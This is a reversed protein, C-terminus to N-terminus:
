PPRQWDNGRTHRQRRRRHTHRQGGVLLSTSEPIACPHCDDGTTGAVSVDSFYLQRFPRSSAAQGLDQIQQAGLTSGDAFQMQSVAGDLGGAIVVAGTGIGDVVLYRNNGQADVGRWFSLQDQTVGDGFVIKSTGEDDLVVDNDSTSDILYTDNGAGGVLYDRGAGGSLTDDGEQGLILDDGDEGYLVDDGTEGLIQDGDAGGYVTDKGDWGWVFDVGAGGIVMDDGTGASIDDDADQGTITDNGAGGVLAGSGTVTDDGADGMLTGYGVLVDNGDGGWLRGGGELYDSGAGGNLNNGDVNRDFAIDYPEIENDILVDNGDGGDLSDNDAGGQLTDNGAQGLLLDRGVGGFLTDDGAYGYLNDSGDGGDLYDNGQNAVPTQDSDGFLSDSGAGGFLTDNGSDGILQDQGDGGSLYDDGDDAATVSLGASPAVNNNGRILDDGAGGLLTDAGGDGFIQDDGAGGDIYDNGIPITTAVGVLQNYTDGALRDNGNGGLLVDNGADGAVTDNGDDGWVTDDGFQAFVYDDGSGAHIEDAAGVEGAYNHISVSTYTADFPTGLGTGPNASVNSINGPDYDDDGNIVDHGAGGVLLDKGGGGFIIDNGDAGVVTDDGLGGQLWESQTILLQAPMAGATPATASTTIYDRLQAETLQTDAFVADNGDNGTVVDIGAGGEVIDDGVNGSAEDNGALGQVRDNGTGGVLPHRGGTALRNDDLTTGAVTNSPTPFPIHQQGPANLVIGLDGSKFNKVTTAGVVSQILLTGRGNADPAFSYLVGKGDITEQWLGAALADGGTLRTAGIRIEGQGDSDDITDDGDGAMLLYSDSGAGGQLTDSETGGTLVDNGAGGDLTDVGAGGRLIDAETGGPCSTAAMAVTSHTPAKHAMFGTTTPTATSFTTGQGGLLTDNGDNGNLTDADANGELYDNGGNGSIADAGGMGYLHDGLAADGGVIAEGADGGFITRVPNNGAATNGGAQLGGIVTISKGQTIDDFRYSEPTGGRVVETNATNRQIDLALMKARDAYWQDTFEFDKGADGSVRANRDAAWAIYDKGHGAQWVADLTPQASPDNPAAHFAFPSLSQLALLDGFDTKASSEPSRGGLAVLDLRGKLKAYADSAAIDHLRDNLSDRGTYGNPNTTFDAKFKAWTNGDPSGKLDTGAAGGLLMHGLANVTNELVDGEAKGQGTGVALDGNQSKLNSAARLVENLANGATSQRDLAVLGLLTSQVNLSDVLLMLSHTDGFDKVAYQDVLLKLGSHQLSDKAVDLGIGGRVLPQDEIYIPVDLGHHWQSNAVISPVSNGVVDFQNGLLPSDFAKGGYAQIGIDINLAAESRTGALLVAMRYNLNAGAIQALGWAKPTSGADSGDGGAHLGQLRTTEDQLQRIQDFAQMTRARDSAIASANPNADGLSQFNRMADTAQALTLSGNSLGAQLTNYLAGMAPDTFTAAIKAPDARLQQFWAVASALGASLDSTNKIRGVGAGNFTVVEKAAGPHLLNFATALHGGLSYGTVSFQKGALVGGSGSLQAFWDQMDAIQGWAWGTDNIEM